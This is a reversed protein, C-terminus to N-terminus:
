LFVFYYYLTNILRRFGGFSTSWACLLSVVCLLSLLVYFLLVYAVNTLTTKLKIKFIVMSSIIRIQFKFLCIIRSLPDLM